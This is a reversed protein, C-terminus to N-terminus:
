PRRPEAEIGADTDLGGVAVAEFPQDAMTRPRGESQLMEVEDAAAEVLDRLTRV